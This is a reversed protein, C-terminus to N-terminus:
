QKSEFLEINLGNPDEVFINRITPSFQVVEGRLSTVPVGAARMRLLLGDLDKVRLAIAPAGPDPVRLHFPTRSVGKYEYFAMLAKTGPINGVLERSQAHPSGVLDSILPDSSFDPKGNLDFGLLEHYFKLTSERDGITLGVSADYVNGESTVGAAPTSQVVEIFYGDPDEILLSQINGRPTPITVPAGSSTVIRDKRKKIAALVPAIDKVRLALLAAGPDTHKPRGPRRDVGSFQTLEFGFSENPLKLTALRLSVGPSNTLAPVGPNPFPRPEGKLGFVDNYFALTTELDNVAHIYNLMGVVPTASPPTDAQLLLVAAFLAFCITKM